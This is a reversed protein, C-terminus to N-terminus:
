CLLLKVSSMLALIVPISAHKGVVKQLQSSAGYPTVMHCPGDALGSRLLPDHWVHWPVSVQVNPSIAVTMQGYFTFFSLTLFTFAWYIWFKAACACSRMVCALPVYLCCASSDSIKLSGRTHHLLHVHENVGFESPFVLYVECTLVSCLLSSLFPGPGQPCSLAAMGHGLWSNCHNLCGCHGLCAHFLGNFLASLSLLDCCPGRM